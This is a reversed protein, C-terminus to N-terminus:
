SNGGNFNPQGQLQNNNYMQMMDHRSPRQSYQGDGGFENNYHMEKDRVSNRMQNNDVNTTVGDRTESCYGACNGM